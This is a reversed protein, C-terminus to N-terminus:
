SVRVKVNVATQQASFTLTVSGTSVSISSPNVGYTDTYLDITSNTTISADSLTISTSGAALTGVVDTYYPEPSDDTVAIVGKKEDASLAQYQALTMSRTIEVITKGNTSDDHSYVGKFQLNNEQSLATGSDNLITHGSSSTPYQSFKNNMHYIENPNNSNDLYFLISEATFETKGRTKIGFYYTGSLASTDLEITKDIPLTWSDETLTEYSSFTPNYTSGSPLTDVVGIQIERPSGIYTINAVMTIHDINTLDIATKYMASAYSNYDGSGSIIKFVLKGDDISATYASSYESAFQWNSATYDPSTYAPPSVLYVQGNSKQQPTLNAYDTTSIPTIEQSGGGGNANEWKNTTSNFTLVQGNTPSSLAVDGQNALNRPIEANVWKAYAADYQLVNLSGLTGYNINVDSLDNLASAGGSTPAYIDTSVGDIEIEAIKTGSQTIQTWEVTSGSGGGTPAYVDTTNGNIIIEAIKAGSQQIQNWEIPFEVEEMTMSVAPVNTSPLLITAIVDNTNFINGNYQLMDALAIVQINGSANQLKVKGVTVESIGAAMKSFSYDNQATQTGDEYETLFCDFQTRSAVAEMTVTYSLGTPTYLSAEPIKFVSNGIQITELDATPTGSPNGIVTTGGSSYIIQGVQLKELAATATGSPNAIVTTGGGGSGTSSIIGNSDITITSGDVKVGGLTGTSATPLSYNNANAEVGDLKNKLTSTFNNDTHVYNSDQVYDGNLVQGAFTDIKDSNSNIVDVDVYDTNAPKELNLNTTRSSM